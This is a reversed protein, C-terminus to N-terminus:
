HLLDRVEAAHWERAGLARFTFEGASDLLYTRPLTGPFAGAQEGSRARWVTRPVAGSFYTEINRWNEDLSVALVVAEGDDFDDALALVGPLERVCPACWTAWFHLVIPHGQLESLVRKSGDAREIELPPAPAHSVPEVEIAREGSPSAKRSEIALYAGLAMGQLVILALVAWGIRGPRTV